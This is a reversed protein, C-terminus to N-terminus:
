LMDPRPTVTHVHKGTTRHANYATWDTVPHTEYLDGKRRPSSVVSGGIVEAYGCMTLLAAEKMEALAEEATCDVLKVRVKLVAYGQSM